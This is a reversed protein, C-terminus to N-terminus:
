RTWSPSDAGRALVLATGDARVSVVDDGIVGLVRRGDRSLDRVEVFDNPLRQVRGTAVNILVAQTEGVDFVVQTLLRKGDASWDVPALTM